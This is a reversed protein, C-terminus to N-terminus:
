LSGNWKELSWDNVLNEILLIDNWIGWPSLKKQELTLMKALQRQWTETDIIHWGLFEGRVIHETRMYKPKEFSDAPYHGVHEVIKQKYAVSLTFFVMFSEKSDALKLLNAPRDSYLGPLVRILNGITKDKYIYHLYVKGKTTNIEFIDGLKIRRM